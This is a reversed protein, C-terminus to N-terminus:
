TAVKVRLEFDYTYSFQTGVQLSGAIKGSPYMTLLNEVTHDLLDITALEEYNASVPGDDPTFGIFVDLQVSDSLSLGERILLNTGTRFSAGAPLSRVGIAYQYYDHLSHNVEDFATIYIPQDSAPTQCTFSKLRVRVDYKM